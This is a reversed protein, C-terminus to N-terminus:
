VQLLPSEACVHYDEIQDSKLIETIMQFSEFGFSDEKVSVVDENLIM